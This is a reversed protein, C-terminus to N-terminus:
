APDEGAQGGSRSDERDLVRAPGRRPGDQLGQILPGEAEVAQVRVVEMEKCTFRAYIGYCPCLEVDLREEKLGIVLGFIVNQDNFGELEVDTVERCLFSVICRNRIKYFGAEDVEPLMQFAYLDLALTPISTARSLEVRLVEADHFSPWLGFYTTVAEVNKIRSVASPPEEM